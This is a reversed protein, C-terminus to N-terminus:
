ESVLTDTVLRVLEVYSRIVVWTVAGLGTSPWASWPGLAPWLMAMALVLSLASAALAARDGHRVTARLLPYRALGHPTPSEVAAPVPSVVASTKGAEAAAHEAALLGHVGAKLLGGLYVTRTGGELGGTTSGAAYLGPIPEGSEAVVRGHDDIQIGGMTYTISPMIRIAMFPAQLIPHPPVGSSRSPSLTAALGAKVAANYEALTRDLTPGPLGTAQALEDVTQARIVTGGATEFLPNAPIRASRGRDDWIAADFIAWSEEGEPRTALANALFVGNCGEDVVRHGEGNM